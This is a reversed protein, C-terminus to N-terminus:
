RRRVRPAGPLGRRRLRPATTVSVVPRPRLVAADVEPIRPLTLINEVTVAPM